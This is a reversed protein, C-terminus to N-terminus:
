AHHGEIASDGTGDPEALTCSWCRPSGAASARWRVDATPRANRDRTHGTALRLRQRECDGDVSEDRGVGAQPSPSSQPMLDAFREFQKIEAYSPLYGAFSIELYQV